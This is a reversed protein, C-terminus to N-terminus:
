GSSAFPDGSSQDRAANGNAVVPKGDYSLKSIKFVNLRYWDRIRPNLVKHCHPCNKDDLHVRVHQWQGIVSVLSKHRGYKSIFIGANRWAVCPFFDCRGNGRNVQLTFKVYEEGYQGFRVRPLEIDADSPDSVLLVGVAHWSQNATMLINRDKPELQKREEPPQNEMIGRWKYKRESL